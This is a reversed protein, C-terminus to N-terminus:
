RREAKSLRCFYYVNLRNTLDRRRCLLGLQSTTLTTLNEVSFLNRAKPHGVIFDRLLVRGLDIVLRAQGPMGLM